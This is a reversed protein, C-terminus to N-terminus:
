APVTTTYPSPRPIPSDTPRSCRTSRSPQTPMTCRGRITTSPQTGCCDTKHRRTTGTASPPSNKSRGRRYTSSRVPHVTPGRSTFRALAPVYDDARSGSTGTTKPSRVVHTISRSTISSAHASASSARPTSVSSTCETAATTLLTRGSTSNPSGSDGAKPSGRRGSM